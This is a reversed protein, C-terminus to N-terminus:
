WKCGKVKPSNSAVKQTQDDTMSEGVAKYRQVASATVPIGIIGVQAALASCVVARKFMNFSAM